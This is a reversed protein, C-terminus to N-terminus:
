FMGCDLLMNRYHQYQCIATSIAKAELYHEGMLANQCDIVILSAQITVVSIGKTEIKRRNMQVGELAM